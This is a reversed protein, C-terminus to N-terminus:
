FSLPGVEVKVEPQGVVGTIRYGMLSDSIGGILRGVAGFQNQLKELPGANVLLNLRQTFYIQGKGRAAAVSSNYELKSVEMRDGALTFEVL